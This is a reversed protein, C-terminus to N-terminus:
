KLIDEKASCIMFSLGSFINERRQFEHLRETIRTILSKQTRGSIEYFLSAFFEISIIISQCDGRDGRQCLRYSEFGLPTPPIKNIIFEYRLDEM